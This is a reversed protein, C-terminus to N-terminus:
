GKDARVYLLSLRKPASQMSDEDNEIEFRIHKEIMM